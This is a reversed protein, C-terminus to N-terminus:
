MNKAIAHGEHSASSKQIVKGHIECSKQSLKPSKCSKRLAKLVKALAYGEHSKSSKQMIKAPSKCSKGM